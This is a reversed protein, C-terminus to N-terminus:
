KLIANNLSKTSRMKLAPRYLDAKTVTIPQYIDLETTRNHFSRLKPSM